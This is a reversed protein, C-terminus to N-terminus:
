VILLLFHPALASFYIHNNFTYINCEGSKIISEEEDDDMRPRKRKKNQEM